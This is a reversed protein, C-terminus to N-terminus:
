GGLGRLLARAKEKVDDNELKEEALMASLAARVSQAHTAM